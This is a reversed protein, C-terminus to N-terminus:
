FIQLQQKLLCVSFSNVDICVTFHERGMTIRFQFFIRMQFSVESGCPLILLFFKSGERCRNEEGGVAQHRRLCGIRIADEGGSFNSEWSGDVNIFFFIESRHNFFCQFETSIGFILCKGSDVAARSDHGSEGMSGHETYSILYDIGYLATSDTVEEQYSAAVTGARSTIVIRIKYLLCRSIGDDKGQGTSFITKVIQIKSGDATEGADHIHALTVIGVASDFYSHCEGFGESAIDVFQGQGHYQGPILLFGDADQEGQEM